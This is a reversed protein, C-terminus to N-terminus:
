LHSRVELLLRNEDHGNARNHHTGKLDLELFPNLGYRLGAGYTSTADEWTVETYPTLLADGLPFGYALQADLRAGPQHNNIALEGDGSLSWLEDLRTGTVGFSPQLTLSLGEGDRKSPTFRLQGGMGWERRDGGGLLVRTDVTASVSGDTNRWHLRSALEAGGGDADDNGSVSRISWGLEVAATLLGTEVSFSRSIEAALRALRADVDLFSSAAADVKFALDFPPSEGTLPDGGALVEFRVGGALNTFSDTQTAAPVDGDPTQEVEGRGYGVTAWLSLQETALWNVYPNVTTIGLEYTGEARSGDTTTTYDLGWRTTTLALGTVLQPIPQLDIGVTGSFGNGEVDTDRITNGYSSYDAGGWVALTSFLDKQWGASEGQALNLSSLPFAFDRGALVEQWDLSGNKLQDREGHFFAVADEVVGDLSLTPPAGPSGSAISNLRSTIVETTQATVQQLVEPLVEEELVVKAEEEAKITDGVTVTVADATTISGYGSVSHRITVTVDDSDADDVGTVTVTVAQRTDWNTTTFTLSAPSLSVAGGDGITPTITVPGPPQSDLVLTYNGRSGEGVTLMTTAVSVGAVDDDTVTVTAAAAAGVRYTAPNNNDAVVTVSVTSDAEDVHDDETAVTFTAQTQGQAVMVTRSGEHTAAVMDGTESLTVGVTLDSSPAEDLTLTFTLTSGESVAQPLGSLTVTPNIPTPDGSGPMMPDNTDPMMPDNPDPMQAPPGNETQGNSGGAPDGTMDDNTVNIVAVGAESPSGVGYTAPTASDANIMVTVTGDAGNAATSISLSATSSDATFTVSSPPTGSLAGGTETVSVDVVLEETAPGTRNLTFVADVGERVSTSVAQISVEPLDNDQVTVMAQSPRGFTYDAPLNGPHPIPSLLALTVVSDAEDLLDDQTEYNLVVAAQDTGFAIPEIYTALLVDGTESIMARAVLPGSTDGSRTVRFQVTEGEMVVSPSIAEISVEPLDNDTVTVTVADAATVDQYGSRLGISTAGPSSVSHSITVTEAATDEDEMVTVTVTQPINWWNNTDFVLSAPSVSVAETDGSMPTVTVGLGHMTQSNLVLTYTTTGGEDANVETPEVIVGPTRDDVRVAVVAAAAVPDYGDYGSVGHSITLTQDILDDDESATVTVTQLTNWNATTFVLSAPSVSVADTDGSMPTITVPGSPLTHLRLRYTRTGNENVVLRTDRDVYIGPTDNDTVSITVVDGVSVAGYGSVTHSITVTEDDIDPDQTGTVTVTQATNWDTTTFTVNAPSASVAGSDGSTPTITVHGTPLANLVLAYAATGGEDVDVSADQVRVGPDGDNVSITVVDDVSTVGGYGSVSHSITVTEDKSDTDQVGTVTVTQDTDWNTTTFTLNAPSTSVADTDDSTPTITVPGTPQTKLAVTYTLTEGENLEPSAAQQVWLGPEAEQITVTASDVEADYGYSTSAGSVLVTEGGSEAETDATATLTFTGMASTSRNPITLTFNEAAATFDTDQATDAAVSITVRTAVPRGRPGDRLTATVTITEGGSGEEVETPAVNLSVGFCDPLDDPTLTLHGSAVRNWLLSSRPALCGLHNRLGNDTLNLRQLNSLDDFISADLSSLANNQLEIDELRSLGAFINAPLSSLTKNNSDDRQNSLYIQRLNGLSAFITDPLSSFQNSDLDLTQLNSLDDFIGAPLNGLSNRRLILVELNSLGDFINAPLNSLSNDGLYLNELRALGAFINAPLGSLSASTLTLTELRALGAFINAPLGSLSASTLDLSELYDLDAFDDEQLSPGGSLFLSTISNLHAVSLDECASVAAVAAVIANKVVETRDCVDVAIHDDMVSITVADGTVVAGYGSVGHSITVTTDDLDDDLVGTVSVTQPTDWNTTTFTLSAPSVTVADTDGSTPTITVLSTPETNLALTYTTAAGEDVTLTTSSLIVGPDDDSVTVTVVDAATAGDNGSVSHSITVTEAHSDDDQVGAVTVTQATDWNATTFTLSAPSVAIADSDESTPTVTVAGAPQGDLVLTYTTTAGEDVDRSTPSVSVITNAYGNIQIILSESDTSSWDESENYRSLYNDEITWGALGSSSESASSTRRVLRRNELGEHISLWYTTGPNLVPNEPNTPDGPNEHVTFLTNEIGVKSNQNVLRAVVGGEEGVGRPRGNGDDERVVVSVNAIRIDSGMITGEEDITECNECTTLVPTLDIQVSDLTYGNPNDGTTFAQAYFPASNGSDLDTNANIEIRTEDKNTVLTTSAQAQAPTAVATAAMALLTRAVAGSRQGVPEALPLALAASGLLVALRRIMGRGSQQIAQGDTVVERSLRDARSVEHGRGTREGGM